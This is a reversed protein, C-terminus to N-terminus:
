AQDLHRYSLRAAPRGDDSRVLTDGPRRNATPYFVASFEIRCHANSQGDDDGVDLSPNGEEELLQRQREAVVAPYSRFYEYTVPHHKSLQATKRLTRYMRGLLTTKKPLM